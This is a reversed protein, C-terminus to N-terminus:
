PLIKLNIKTTIVTTQALAWRSTAPSSVRYPNPDQCQMHVPLIARRPRRLRCSIEEIKLWPPMFCWRWCWRRKLRVVVAPASNISINSVTKFMLTSFNRSSFIVDTYLILDTGAIITYVTYNVTFNHRTRAGSFLLLLLLAYYRCYILRRM